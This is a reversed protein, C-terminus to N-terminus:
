TTDDEIAPYPYEEFFKEGNGSILFMPRYVPLHYQKALIDCVVEKITFTAQEIEDSSVNDIDQELIDYILNQVANNLETERIRIDFEEETEDKSDDEDSSGDLTRDLLNMNDFGCDDDDDDEDFGDYEIDIDDLAEEYVEQIDFQSYAEYASVPDDGEYITFVATGDDNTIYLEFPFRSAILIQTTELRDQNTKFYEWIKEPKVRIIDLETKM